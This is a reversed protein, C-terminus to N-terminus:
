QPEAAAIFDRRVVRFVDLTRAVFPDTSTLKKGKAVWFSGGMTKVGQAGLYRGSGGIILQNASIWLQSATNDWLSV